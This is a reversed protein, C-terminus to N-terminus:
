QAAPMRAMGRLRKLVQSKQTESLGAFEITEVGGSAAGIGLGILGGLAGFLLVGALIARGEYGEDGKNFQSGLVGGAIGGVLFGTLFGKGAKSKKAIFIISIRSIEVTEDKGAPSVLVLSNQRVAILEGAVSPGDKLAVILNAGRKEQALVAGPLTLFLVVLMSAFFRRIGPTM